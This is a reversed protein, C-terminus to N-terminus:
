DNGQNEFIDFLDVYNILIINFCADIIESKKLYVISIECLIVM